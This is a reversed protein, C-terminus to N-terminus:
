GIEMSEPAVGRKVAAKFWEPQRGRGTWTNSADQPDRYKPLSQSRSKAKGKGEVLETLSFGMAKAEAELKARAEQRKREVFGAIAADVDKRLQKLADLDM